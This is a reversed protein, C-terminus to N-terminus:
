HFKKIKEWINLFLVFTHVFIYRFRLPKRLSVATFIFICTNPGIKSNFGLWICIYIIVESYHITLLIHIIYM